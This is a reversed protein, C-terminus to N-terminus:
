SDSGSVPTAITTEHLRDCTLALPTILRRNQFATNVTSTGGTCKHRPRPDTNWCRGPGGRDRGMIFGLVSVPISAQPYRKHIWWEEDDFAAVRDSSPDFRRVWGPEV